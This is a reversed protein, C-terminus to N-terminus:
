AYGIVFMISCSLLGRCLGLASKGLVIASNSLPCMMMEDFCKYYLRQVNLRTSTSTFSSSLSSLAIIGPIVFDLYPITVGDIVIDGAKLGYGFALLYLLPTVLSSILINKITHRMYRLDSWAVYYAEQLLSM